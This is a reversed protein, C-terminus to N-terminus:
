THGTRIAEVSAVPRMLGDYNTTTKFSQNSIM